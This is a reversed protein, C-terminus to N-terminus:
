GIGRRGSFAGRLFENFSKALIVSRRAWFDEAKAFDWVEGEAPFGQSKLIEAPIEGLYKAPHDDAIARNDGRLVFAINAVNDARHRQQPTRFYSRALLHHRELGRQHDVSTKSFLSRAGLQHCAIFLMLLAGRDALSADFDKAVARLRRGDRLNSLLERIPDPNHCAKLDQELASGSSVSYRHRLAAAAIWGAIERDNRQRSTLGACLAFVPVLLSGSWLVSMGSTGLESEVLGIGEEVARETKRWAARVEQPDLEQLPTRKRGDPHADFAGARFMHTATM